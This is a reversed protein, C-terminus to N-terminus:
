SEEGIEQGLVDGLRKLARLHRVKVAGVTIGLVDAIEATSLHELHRLVLVERDRPGIEQLASQVRRQLEDRLVGHSPSTDRAVLRGALEFASEDPLAPSAHEERTVTRRQAIVHRRHLDILRSWALHRLWPYFPMPRDRLYDSLKAAAEALAEQVVDSADLRAALRRDIRYAVAQRLRHRHLDLLQARADADGAAARELLVEADPSTACM